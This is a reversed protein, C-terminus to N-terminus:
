EARSLEPRKRVERCVQVGDMAPMMWDLIALRPPNEQQLARWAETGDAAPVVDYGWKVLARKLLQLSGRDDDAVLINM